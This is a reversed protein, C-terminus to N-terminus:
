AAAFDEQKGKYKAILTDKQELPLTDFVKLANDLLNALHIAEQVGTMDEDQDMYDQVYAQHGQAQRPHLCEAAFHRPRDCNYCKRVRQPQPGHQFPREVQAINGRFCQQNARNSPFCGRSLDMPVPVNNMSQPANLSNFQPPGQCNNFRQLPQNDFQQLPRFIPTDASVRM